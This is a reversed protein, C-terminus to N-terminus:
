KEDKYDKLTKVLRKGVINRLNLYKRVEVNTALDKELKVDGVSFTKIFLKEKPTPNYLFYSNNILDRYKEKTVSPINKNCKHENKRVTILMNLFELCDIDDERLSEFYNVLDRLDEEKIIQKGWGGDPNIYYDRIFEDFVLNSLKRLTQVYLMKDRDFCPTYFNKPINIFNDNYSCFKDREFRDDYDPTLRESYGISKAFYRYGNLFSNDKDKCDWTPDFVYVGEKRYKDDKIYAIVRAHGSGYDEKSNIIYQNARIGLELLLKAYINAFGVCVISDSNLVSVLDRSNEPHDYDDKDLIYERNRVLDYAHLAKELPSYDFQEIERIMDDIVKYAEKMNNVKQYETNGYVRFMINPFEKQLEEALSISKRNLDLIEPYIINKDKLDTYKRLFSFLEDKDVDNFYFNDIIDGLKNNSSLTDKINELAKISEKCHDTYNTDEFDLGVVDLQEKNDKLKEEVVRNLDNKSVLSEIINIGNNYSEDFVEKNLFINLSDEIESYHIEVKEDIENFFDICVNIM